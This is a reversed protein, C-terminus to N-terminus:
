EKNLVGPKNNQQDIIEEVDTDNNYCNAMNNLLNGTKKISESTQIYFYSPGHAYTIEIQHISDIPLRQKLLSGTDVGSGGGCGNVLKSKENSDQLHNLRNLM